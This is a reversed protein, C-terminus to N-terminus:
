KIIELPFKSLMSFSLALWSGIHQQYDRKSHNTIVRLARQLIKPEYIMLSEAWPHDWDNFRVPWHGGDIWLFVWASRNGRRVMWGPRRNPRQATTGPRGRSEHPVQEQFLRCSRFLCLIM